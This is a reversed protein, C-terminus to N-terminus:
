SGVEEQADFCDGCMFLTSEIDVSWVAWGRPLAFVVEGGGLFKTAVHRRVKCHFCCVTKTDEDHM